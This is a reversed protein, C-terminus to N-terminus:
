TDTSYTSLTRLSILSSDGSTLALMRPFLFSRFNGLRLDSMGLLPGVMSDVLVV